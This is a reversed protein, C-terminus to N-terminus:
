RCIEGRYEGEGGAATFTGTAILQGSAGAWEGTGGVITDVEAFEGAGITRLVIADKTLLTGGGTAITNDGTLLVVATAPMDAAAPMDVTPTLRSGVFVSSGKIGGKYSGTACLDVPSTCDPEGFPQLTFKGEVQKCEPAASAANLLALAVVAAVVTVTRKAWRSINRGVM